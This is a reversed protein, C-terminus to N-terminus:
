IDRNRYLRRVVAIQGGHWCDHRISARLLDAVTRGGKLKDDLRSEELNALTARLKARSDRLLSLADAVTNASLKPGEGPHEPRVLIWTSYQEYCEALHVLYWLVTGPLPAGAETTEKSFSIHQYAAEEETLGKIANEISEWPDSEAADFAALLEDKRAM